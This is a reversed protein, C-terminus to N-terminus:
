TVETRERMQKVLEREVETRILLKLEELLKHRRIDSLDHLLLKNCIQTSKRILILEQRQCELEKEMDRLDM